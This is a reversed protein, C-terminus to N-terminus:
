DQSAHVPLITMFNYSKMFLGSFCIGYYVGDVELVDIQM